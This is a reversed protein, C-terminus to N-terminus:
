EPFGMRRILEAFRHDSRLSDWRPEVNMWQMQFARQEYGKNLWDFAQDNEGLGAYILAIGERLLLRRLTDVRFPGFEYIHMSTDDM